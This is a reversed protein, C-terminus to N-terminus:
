VRRVRKRRTADALAIEREAALSELMLARHKLNRVKRAAQEGTIPIDRADDLPVPHRHLGLSIMAMVRDLFEIM